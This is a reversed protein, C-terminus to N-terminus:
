HAGPYDCLVGFWHDICVCSERISEKTQTQAKPIAERRRYLFASFCIGVCCEFGGLHVHEMAGIVPKALLVTVLSLLSWLLMTAATERRSVFSRTDQQVSMTASSLHSVGAGGCVDAICQM